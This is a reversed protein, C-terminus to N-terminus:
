KGHYPISLEHVAEIMVSVRDPDIQPHIGHGLNFVHGTGHGYSALVEGVENRIVEPSAYLVCPDLNGQLAVRDGVIIRVDGINRTWDVGIADCGSNAISEVWEGGGKTFLIVPIRKDASGRELGQIIQQMYHLSYQQYNKTTLIGGWTDFIMVAQVGAHIQANLYATVSDALLNLLHHMSDPDDYMLGKIISFEKSPAGEVMYTALTWPSGSFGILPVKNDLENRILRIADMVYGLDSGPEPVHLSRIEAASRVPHEFAPGKQEVMNLGLGMADPITLIDSFLIAADLPYRALPQLTVECALEPTKCLTLFDGAQERVRRYEPLYRGAQRMFWVPIRDNEGNFAKLFLPQEM